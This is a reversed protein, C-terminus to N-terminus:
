RPRIVLVPGAVALFSNISAAHLEALHHSCALRNLSRNIRPSKSRRFIATTASACLSSRIISAISRVPSAQRQCTAAYSMARSVPYIIRVESNPAPASSM